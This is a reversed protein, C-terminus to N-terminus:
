QEFCYLLPASTCPVTGRSTWYGSSYMVNGYTGDTAMSQWDSCSEGSHMGDELTGTWAAYNRLYIGTETMNLPADLYYGLTHNVLSTVNAAVRIGDLRIWPGGPSSFRSSADNGSDSLWAKFTGNLLANDAATQCFADAGALGGTGIFGDTGGSTVFAIKGSPSFNTLPPGDGVEMCLLHRNDNCGAYAYSFLVDVGETFNVYARSNPGQDQWNNCHYADLEGTSDTGTWYTSRPALLGSEDYNPVTYVVGNDIIEDIDAAFPTGDTRNWPGAPISPNAPSCLGKKGTLDHIRCYFDDSSDSLLAAFTGSLGGASARANCIADAASLGTLGGADTGWNTNNFVGPGSTSTIFAVKIRLCEVAVDTVDAEEITGSGHTISCSYGTPHSFVAVDYSSNDALSTAFVFSGNHSLTLNDDGNNQLVLGAGTLGSVTGGVTFLSNRSCGTVAIILSLIAWLSCILSKTEKM